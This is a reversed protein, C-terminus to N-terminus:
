DNLRERLAKIEDKHRIRKVDTVSMQEAVVLKEYLDFIAKQRESPLVDSEDSDFLHGLDLM